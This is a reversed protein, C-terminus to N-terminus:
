RACEYGAESTCNEKRSGLDKAGSQQDPIDFCSGRPASTQYLKAVACSSVQWACSNFQELTKCGSSEISTICQRRALASSGIM